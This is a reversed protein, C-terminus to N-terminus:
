PLRKGYWIKRRTMPRSAYMALPSRKWSSQLLETAAIIEWPANLNPMKGHRKWRRLTQPHVGLKLAMQQITLLLPQM